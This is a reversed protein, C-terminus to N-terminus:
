EQRCLETALVERRDLAIGDLRSLVLSYAWWAAVALVSLVVVALWMRRLFFAGAIIGGCIGLVTAQMGMSAAMTIGSVRRQRMMGFEMRRPFYLSLINGVAFNLPSAFLLAALTALLTPAGPPRFFISVGIWVLFTEFFTVLLQSLNKAFLVDRFRVPAFFLFQVGSGDFAFANYVFNSQILFAYGAAVPFVLDPVHVFLNAHKGSQTLSIGFFILIVLPVILNFLAPGSRLLYRIEKELIASAPPSLGPFQWAPQVAVPLPAAVARQTEGLDEGHYQAKLRVELLLLFGLGYAALLATSLGASAFDGAASSGLAEVALGPPLVREVWAYREIEPAARKSWRGALPGLFQLSMMALLFLIALVERTRRRRLWRDLWAFIARNLLLNMAAFVLAVPIVWLVMVPRALIIGFAACVLWFLGAMASPDLQGYALTLLFFTSYRLPFRLLNSFDFQASASAVLLPALQWFLLICWFLAGLWEWHGESAIFYAGVGAGVGAGLVALGLFFSVLALSTFELRGRLTRLSNRFLNWRLQLILGLQTRTALEPAIGAM